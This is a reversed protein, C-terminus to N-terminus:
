KRHSDSESVILEWDLHDPIPVVMSRGGLVALHGLQPFYVANVEMGFQYQMVIPRLVSLTVTTQHDATSVIGYPM